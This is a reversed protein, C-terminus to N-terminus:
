DNLNYKEKLKALYDYDADNTKVYRKGPGGFYEENDYGLLFELVKDKLEQPLDKRIAIPSAPILESQILITLEDMNVNGKEVQNALTSASVGAADVNGKVVAQIASPHTGAYMASKFFAGDTHLDDFTLNMDALETLIMDSPVINGSTSEPDVFAFTRGKLDALSKIDSDKRTIIVSYYGSKGNTATVVLAEAGSRERASVYSFPGLGALQAQGTRMAEVAATYDTARYITVPLGIAQSMAEAMNDRLQVSKETDEGPIRVMIFEKLGYNDAQAAPIAGAGMSYVLALCMFAVLLKRIKM